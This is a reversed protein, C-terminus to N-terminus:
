SVKWGDVWYRRGDPDNAQAFRYASELERWADAITEPTVRRRCIITLGTGDANEKWGCLEVM